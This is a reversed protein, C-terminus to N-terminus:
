IQLLFTSFSLLLFTSPSPLHILFLLPFNLHLYHFHLLLLPLLPLPLLLRLPPDSLFSISFSFLLFPTFAFSFSTIGMNKGGMRKMKDFIKPSRQRQRSTTPLAKLEEMQKVNSDFEELNRRFEELQKSFSIDIKLLENYLSVVFKVDRLTLASPDLEVTPPLHSELVRKITEL